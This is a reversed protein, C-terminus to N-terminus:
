NILKLFAVNTGSQSSRLTEEITKDVLLNNQQECNIIQTGAVENEKEVSKQDDIIDDGDDETNHHHKKASQGNNCIIGASSFSTNQYSSVHFKKCRVVLLIYMGTENVISNINLTPSATTTPTTQLHSRALVEQYLKWKRRGMLEEAVREM